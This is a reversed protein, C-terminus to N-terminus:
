TVTSPRSTCPLEVRGRCVRLRTPADGSAVRHGARTLRSSLDSEPFGSTMTCVRGYTHRTEGKLLRISAHLCTRRPQRQEGGDQTTRQRGETDPIPPPVRGGYCLIRVLILRGRQGMTM